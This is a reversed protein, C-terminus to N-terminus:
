PKPRRLMFIMRYHAHERNTLLLKSWQVEYGQDFLKRLQMLETNGEDDAVDWLDAIGNIEVGMPATQYFTYQWM